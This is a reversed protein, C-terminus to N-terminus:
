IAHTLVFDFLILIIRLKSFSVGVCMLAVWAIESIIERSDAHNVSDNEIKFFDSM